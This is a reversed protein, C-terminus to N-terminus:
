ESMVILILLGSIRGVGILSVEVGGEREVAAMPSLLRTVLSKDGWVSGSLKGIEFKEKGDM